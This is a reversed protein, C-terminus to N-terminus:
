PVEIKIDNGDVEVRYSPVATGAPPRLVEGNAVDFRAGHGPCTVTTGKPAFWGRGRRGPSEISCGCAGM